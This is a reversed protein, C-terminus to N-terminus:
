GNEKLVLFSNKILKQMMDDTISPISGEIRDFSNPKAINNILDLSQPLNLCLNENGANM